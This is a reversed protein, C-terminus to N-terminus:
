TQLAGLLVGEVMGGGSGTAPSRTAKIAGFLYCFALSKTGKATGCALLLTVIEFIPSLTLFFLGTRLM